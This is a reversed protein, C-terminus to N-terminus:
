VGGMLALSKHYGLLKKLRLGEKLGCLLLRAGCLVCNLPREGTFRKFMMAFTIKPRNEVEHGVLTHVKELLEGRKAHSLFGYYRIMRFHKDPIHQIFKEIFTDLSMKLRENEDYVREIERGLEEDRRQRVSRLEPNQQRKRQWYYTAPAIHLEQ